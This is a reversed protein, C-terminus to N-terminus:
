AAKTYKKKVVEIKATLMEKDFPKIVYQDAGSQIAEKVMAGEAEATVMIVPIHRFRSDAKIRKLLDIGNCNPMNIDSFILAPSHEQVATFGLNGDAAEVINEFGMERLAKSMLKRMTMMDDVVLIKSEKTFM